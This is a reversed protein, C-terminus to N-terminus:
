NSAQTAVLRWNPNQLAKLNSIDRSFTWIDTVDKIQQPDGAVAQGSRDLTESILQSNFKVTIFAHGDKAEAEVIDTAGIGVFKQDVREGRSERETIASNFSEFVDRSLLNKLTKRDGDAFATVIMEYAAKAGSVFAAPDFAADSRGIAVLGDRIDDSAAPFSRIRAEADVVATDPAAGTGPEDSRTRPLTVIEAGGPPVQRREKARLREIRADDDDSRQGLVSRLKLIAVAAVILSLLTFLDINGNM